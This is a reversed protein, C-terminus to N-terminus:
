RHRMMSAWSLVDYIAAADIVMPPPEVGAPLAERYSLGSSAASRVTGAVVVEDGLLACPIFIGDVPAGYLRCDGYLFM